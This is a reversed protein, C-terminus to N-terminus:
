RRLLLPPMGRLCVIVDLSLHLSLNCLHEFLFLKRCLQQSFPVAFRSLLYINFSTSMLLSTITFLPDVYLQTVIPSYRAFVYIVKTLTVPARFICVDSKYKLSDNQGGVELYRCVGGSFEARTGFPTCDLGGSGEVNPAM